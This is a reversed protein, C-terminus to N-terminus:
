KDELKEIRRHLHLILILVAIFLIPILTERIEKLISMPVLLVLGILFALWFWTLPKKVLSILLTKM